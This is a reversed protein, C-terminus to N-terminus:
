LRRHLTEIQAKKVIYKDKLRAPTYEDAHEERFKQRMEKIQELTMADEHQFLEQYYRPVKKIVGLGPVPVEDSPFMDDKYKDYWDKGIGPKRSMTIYEPIVWYGGDAKFYHDEAAAGNVKKLIYRAVYAASEFNAEGVDVFGYKWIGELIKSTYRPEGRHMTYQELDPFSCNFLIAHYHPRGVNCCDCPQEDLDFGHECVNGYEGCHFFRIRGGFYKRLRKMFDQFHKKNLSWDVPIHYGNARQEPTCESEDRYTLTIFCNGRDFEHLQSEHVIRMAWMRSHDLRCGLCQGCAVEMEELPGKGNRNFRIGGTDHDKWGQLPSYCPM